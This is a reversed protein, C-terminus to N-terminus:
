AAARMLKALELRERHITLMAAVRRAFRERRSRRDSCRAALARREARSRPHKM